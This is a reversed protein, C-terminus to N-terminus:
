VGCCLVVENVTNQIASGSAEFGQFKLWFEANSNKPNEKGRVAIHRGLRFLPLLGQFHFFSLERSMYFGLMHMLYSCVCCAFCSPCHLSCLPHLRQLPYVSPSHHSCTQPLFHLCSGTIPEPEVAKYVIHLLVLKDPSNKTHQVTYTYSNETKLTKFMEM